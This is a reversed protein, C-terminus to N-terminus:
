RPQHNLPLATEGRLSRRVSAEAQCLRGYVQAKTLGYLQCIEAISHGESRNLLLIRCHLPPLQQLAQRVSVILDYNPSSVRETVTRTNDSAFEDLSATATAQASLHVRWYDAIKGKAVQMLWTTLRSEGRFLGRQMQSIAALCVEQAVDPCDQPPIRAHRALKEFLPLYHRAFEEAAREDGRVVCDVFQLDTGYALM